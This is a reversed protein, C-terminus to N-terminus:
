KKQPHKKLYEEIIDIIDQKTFRPEDDEGAGSDVSSLRAPESQEIGPPTILSFVKQGKNGHDSKYLVEIKDYTLTWDEDLVVERDDTKVNLKCSMLRVSSLALKLEIEKQMRQRITLTAKASTAGSKLLNMMPVSARDVAKSIELMKGEAQRDENKGTPSQDALEMGWAWDFLEIEGKHGEAQSDGAVGSLALYVEAYEM